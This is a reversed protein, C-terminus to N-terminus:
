SSIVLYPGLMLSVKTANKCSNLGDFMIKLKERVNFGGDSTVVRFLRYM